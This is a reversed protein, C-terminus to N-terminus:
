YKINLIVPKEPHKKGDTGTANYRYLYQGAPVPNGAKDKGDWKFNKDDSEFLVDGSFNFIAIHFESINETELMFYDNVNDGNPSFVNTNKIWSEEGSFHDAETAEITVKDTSKKGNKDKLTLTVTYSGPQEFVYEPSPEESIKSDGFNWEYSYDGELQNSFKVQLPAPGGSLSAVISAAPKNETVNEVKVELNNFRVPETYTEYSATNNNNNQFVSMIKDKKEQPTMWRNVVSENLNQKPEKEKITIKITSAKNSKDKQEVIISNEGTTFQKEETIETEATETESNLVVVSENETKNKDSDTKKDSPWLAYTIGLGAVIIVSVAILILKGSVASTAAASGSGAANQSLKGQMAEWSIGPDSEYNEFASKFLEEINKPENM